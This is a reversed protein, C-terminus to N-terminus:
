LYSLHFSVEFSMIFLDISYSKSISSCGRKDLPNLNVFCYFLSFDSPDLRLLGIICSQRKWVEFFLADWLMWLLNMGAQKYERIGRFWTGDKLFILIKSAFFSDFLFLCVYFLVFKWEGYKLTEPSCFLKVVCTVDHLQSNIFFYNYSIALQTKFNLVM